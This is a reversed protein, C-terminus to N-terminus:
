ARVKESEAVVQGAVVVPEDDLYVSCGRMPIDLHAPTHRGVYRNPGTSFLFNGQFHRGDSWNM